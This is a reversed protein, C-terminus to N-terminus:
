RVLEMEGSDDLGAKDLTMPNIWESPGEAHPVGVTM